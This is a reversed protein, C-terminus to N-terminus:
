GYHPSKGEHFQIQERKQTGMQPNLYKLIDENARQVREMNNRFASHSADSPFDELLDQTYGVYQETSTRDKHNMMKGVEKIDATILYMRCGFSHRLSHLKTRNKEYIGIRKYAKIVQKSIYDGFSKLKYQELFEDRAQHVNKILPIFVKPVNYSFERGSKSISSDIILRNGRLKGEVLEMKRCGTFWYVKCADAVISPIEGNALLDKFQTETIYKPRPEAIVKILKIKLPRPIYSRDYLWNFFSKIINLERNISIDCVQGKRAVKFKDIDDISLDKINKDGIVNILTKINRTNDKITTEALEVAKIKLWRKSLAGITLPVIKSKSHNFWEAIESINTLEEISLEGDIIFQRYVNVQRCRSYAELEKSTQLPILVDIVNRSTIRCYYKGRKKCLGMPQNKM